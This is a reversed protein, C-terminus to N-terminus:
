SIWSFINVLVKFVIFTALCTLYYCFCIIRVVLQLHFLESFRFTPWFSQKSNFSFTFPLIPQNSIHLQLMSIVWWFKKETSISGKHCPIGLDIIISGDNNSMLKIMLNKVNWWKTIISEEITSSILTFIWM